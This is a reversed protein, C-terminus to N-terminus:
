FQSQPHSSFRIINQYHSLTKAVIFRLLRKSMAKHLSDHITHRIHYLTQMTRACTFESHIVNEYPIWNIHHPLATYKGRNQTRVNLLNVFGTMGIANGTVEFFYNVVLYQISSVTVCSYNRGFRHNRMWEFYGARIGTVYRKDNFVPPKRKYVVLPLRPM